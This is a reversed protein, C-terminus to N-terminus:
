VLNVSYINMLSQSYYFLKWLYKLDSFFFLLIDLHAYHKM